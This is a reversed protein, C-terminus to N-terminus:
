QLYYKCKLSTNNLQKYYEYITNLKDGGITM